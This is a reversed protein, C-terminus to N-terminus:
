SAGDGAGGLIFQLVAQSGKYIHSRRAARCTQMLTALTAGSKHWPAARRTCDLLAWAVEHDRREAGYRQQARRVCNILSLLKPEEGPAVGRVLLWRPRSGDEARPPPQWLLKNNCHEKDDALRFLARM